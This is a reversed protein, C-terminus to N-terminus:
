QHDSLSLNTPAPEKKRLRKAPKLAAEAQPKSKSASKRQASVRDTASALSHKAAKAEKSLTESGQQISKLFTELDSGPENHAIIKLLTKELKGSRRLAKELNTLHDQSTSQREAAM